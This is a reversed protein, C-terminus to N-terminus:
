EGPTTFSSNFRGLYTSKAVDTRDDTVFSIYLEVTENAYQPHIELLDHGELRRAGSTVFVCDNIEPFYAMMMVQDAKSEWHAEPDYEWSFKIGETTQEVSANQATLAAGQSILVQEYNIKAGNESQLIAINKNVATAVNHYNLLTGKTQNIFGVKLFPKIYKFFNMLVAMSNCNVQQADTLSATREGVGRVRGQGGVTYWVLNGVRGSIQGYIGNNSKGM